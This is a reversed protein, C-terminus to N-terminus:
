RGNPKLREPITLGMAGTVNPPIPAKLGFGPNPFPLVIGSPMGETGTAPLEDTFLDFTNLRPSSVGRRYTRDGMLTYVCGAMADAVDKSGEAPHDVKKGTDVLQMLENIAVEVQVLDGNKMYTMYPPFEIRDGYIAERLDEYPQKSRDMSLDDVRFKKKRLAQQTDTSQFGDMTVKYINFGRDEKLIYLYKRVDSYIIQQGPPAKIRMLADLIIYPQMEGEDDEVIHDVHGMAMGLADQTLAFDIHVTRKRRDGNAKFWEEFVLKNQDPQVPSGQAFRAVWRDRAAKIAGLNSIFASGVVPPYGALDRLAKEPNTTFQTRYANPIEILNSNTILGVVGSPIIKKTETDYWFSARTGDSRTFRHWGLSEWITMRMTYAKPDKLFERYKRAAFGVSKKMQGICIILGKHGMDEGDSNGFDTFRSAIRSQIADFGVDAYDKNDTLKHSDMEDLIGGLINYGEFMTESSGGPLIWIDKPFRIQKTFDPDHPYNNIFWPSAQIRALIDGFIVELAQKSSTSMQMFAIRSGPMLEFFAQPNKLCLVWHAMYPLAISAFTTKGIGIGGTVLAREFKSIRDASVEDGFIDMLAHRLGPRVMDGLELYGEGLFESISAPKEEFDPHEVLWRTEEAVRVPDFTIV